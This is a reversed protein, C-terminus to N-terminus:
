EAHVAESNERLLRQEESILMKQNRDTGDM